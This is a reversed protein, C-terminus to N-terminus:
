ECYRPPLALVPLETSAIVKETTSGLFFRGLRGVCRAMVILDFRHKQAYGTIGQSATTAKIIDGSVSLGARRRGFTQRFKAETTQVMERVLRFEHGFLELVYLLTLSAGLGRALRYAYERETEEGKTFDTPVLIKQFAKIKKGKKTVLVPVPSHRLVYNAVSGIILKELLSQGRKGMVILSVREKEAVEVVKRAPSGETVIVRSFELGRKKELARVRALAEKKLEAQRRLLEKQVPLANQYMAPMFDPTVHLAVVKAGFARGLIEGYRLAEMAEPSFDTPWLIKNLFGKM